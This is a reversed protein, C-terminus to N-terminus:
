RVSFGVVEYNLRCLDLLRPQAQPPVHRPLPGQPAGAVGSPKLRSGRQDHGIYGQESHPLQSPPLRGALQSAKAYLSRLTSM